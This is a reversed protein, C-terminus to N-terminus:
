FKPHDPVSRDPSVDGECIWMHYYPNAETFNVFLAGALVTRKM